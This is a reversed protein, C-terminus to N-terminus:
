DTFLGLRTGNKCGHVRPYSAGNEIAALRQYPRSSNSTSSNERSPRRTFCPMAIWRNEDLQNYFAFLQYYEKQTHILSDHRPQLRRDAGDLRNGAYQHSRRCISRCVRRSHCRRRRHQRQLSQLRNNGVSRHKLLDGAIQEITFDDFRKNQNMAQGGLRSLAIHRENDLHLRAATAHPMWGNPGPARLLHNWSIIWQNKMPMRTLTELYAKLTHPDPPLGTLTLSARRFLVAKSAEKQPDLERQM